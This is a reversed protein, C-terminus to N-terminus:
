IMQNNSIKFFNIINSIFDNIVQYNNAAIFVSEQNNYLVKKFESNFFQNVIPVINIKDILNKSIKFIVMSNDFNNNSLFLIKDNFDNIKELAKAELVEKDILLNNFNIHIFEYDGIKESYQTEVSEDIFNRILEPNQNQFNTFTNKLQLYEQELQELKEYSDVIIDPYLECLNEHNILKIKKNIIYILSLLEKKKNIFFDNVRKSGVLFKFNFNNKTESISEIEIMELQNFNDKEIKTLEQKLFPYKQYNVKKLALCQNILNRTKFIMKKNIILNKNFTLVFKEEDIKYKIKKILSSPIKLLHFLFLNFLKVALKNNFLEQCFNEDAILKVQHIPNITVIGSIIKVLHFYVGDVITNDVDLVKAKFFDNALIGQESISIKNHSNLITQNLVVIGLNTLQNVTKAKDDLLNLIKVDIESKDNIFKTNEFCFDSKKAKLNEKWDKIKTEFNNM